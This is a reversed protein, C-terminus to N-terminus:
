DGDSSLERFDFTEVCFQLKTTQSRAIIKIVGQSHLIDVFSEANKEILVLNGDFFEPSYAIVKGDNCVVELKYVDEKFPAVEWERNKLFTMICFRNICMNVIVDSIKTPMEGDFYVLTGLAVCLFGKDIVGWGTGGLFATLYCDTMVDSDDQEKTDQM